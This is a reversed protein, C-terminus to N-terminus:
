PKSTVKWWEVGLLLITGVPQRQSDSVGWISGESAWLDSEDGQQVLGTDCCQGVSSAGRLEIGV